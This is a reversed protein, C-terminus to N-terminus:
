PIWRNGRLRRQRCCAWRAPCWGARNPCTCITFARVKPPMPWNSPPCRPSRWPRSDAPLVDLVSCPPNEPTVQFSTYVVNVGQVLWGLTERVGAVGAPKSRGRHVVRGMVAGSEDSACRGADPRDIGIAQGVGAMVQDQDRSAAVAQALQCFRQGATGAARHVDDGRVQGGGVPTGLNFLDNLASRVDLHQDVIGADASRGRSCDSMPSISRM